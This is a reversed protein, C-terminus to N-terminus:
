YIFVQLMLLIYINYILGNLLKFVFTLNLVSFNQSCMVCKGHTYYGNLM